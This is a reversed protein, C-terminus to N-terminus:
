SAFYGTCASADTAGGYEPSDALTSAAGNVYDYFYVRYGGGTCTAPVVTSEDTPPTGAVFASTRLTVGTLKFSDTNNAGSLLAFTSPYTGKEANYAEAKQVFAKAAAEAKTKKSRNTVGNFAVLVIAALVGIVVIVILLEVITFGRQTSSKLSM